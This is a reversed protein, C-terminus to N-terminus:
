ILSSIALPKGLSPFCAGKEENESGWFSRFVRRTDELSPSCERRSSEITKQPEYLTWLLILHFRGGEEGGEQFPEQTRHLQITNWLGLQLNAFMQNKKENNSIPRCTPRREKTMVKRKNVEALHLPVGFFSRWVM